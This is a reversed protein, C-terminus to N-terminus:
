YVKKAIKVLKYVLIAHREPTTIHNDFGFCIKVITYIVKIDM